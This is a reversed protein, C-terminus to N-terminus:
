SESVLPNGKIKLLRYLQSHLLLDVLHPACLLILFDESTLPATRESQAGVEETYADVGDSRGDVVGNRECEEEWQVDKGEKDM